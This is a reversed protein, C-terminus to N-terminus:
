LSIGQARILNFTELFPEKKLPSVFDAPFHTNFLPWSDVKCSEEGKWSFPLRAWGKMPTKPSSWARSRAHFTEGNGPLQFFPHEHPIEFVDRVSPDQPNLVLAYSIPRRRMYYWACAGPDRLAGAFCSTGYSLSYCLEQNTDPDTQLPSDEAIDAGRYLIVSNPKSYGAELHFVRRLLAAAQETVALAKTFPEESDETACFQKLCTHSNETSRAFFSSRFALSKPNSLERYFHLTKEFLHALTTYSLVSECDELLDCFITNARHALYMLPPFETLCYRQEKRRRMLPDFWSGHQYTSFLSSLAPKVTANLEKELESFKDQDEDKRNAQQSLELYEFIKERHTQYVPHGKIKYLDDELGMQIFLMEYLVKPIFTITLKPDIQKITNLLASRRTLHSRQEELYSIAKQYTKEDVPEWGLEGGRKRVIWEGYGQHARLAEHLHTRDEENLFSKLRNFVAPNSVVLYNQISFNM